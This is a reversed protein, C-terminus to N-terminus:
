PEMRSAREGTLQREIMRAQERITPFRYLAIVRLQVGFRETVQAIVRMAVLSNGGLEFFNDDIGLMEVNLQRSWIENLTAETLTNPAEHTKKSRTAERLDGLAGRDVKGNPTCPIQDVVIIQSPVMYPPLCGRAHSRVDLLAGPHQRDVPLSVFGILENAGHPAVQVIVAADKVGPAARLCAEVEAIEVRFGSLKLQKDGRGLHVLGTEARISGRDGTKYLRVGGASWDVRSFVAATATPDQWYGPSLYRSKLVIEGVPALEGPAAEDRGVTRVLGDDGVVAVDVDDLAYGVPIIGEPLRSTADMYFRTATSMESCGYFNVLVAPPSFHRRFLEWDSRFFSDGGLRVIEVTEFIKEKPVSEVLHRFLSPVSRYITIHESDLWAALKPLGEDLVSFACLTAGNLLSGLITGVSATVSCSSLLSVRDEFGLLLANTLRRVVQLTNTHTQMVGKPSGTSGSTFIVCALHEPRARDPVDGAARGIDDVCLVTQGPLALGDLHQTDREVLLLPARAQKLISSNRGAPFSPDLPVYFAGARLVGLMASVFRCYDSILLAVPLHEGRVQADVAAAIDSSRQQLEQYSVSVGRSAVAIRQPHLSVQREFIRTITDTDDLSIPSFGKERALLRRRLAEQHDRESYGDM